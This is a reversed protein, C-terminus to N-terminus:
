SCIVSESKESLTYRQGTVCMSIIDPEMHKMLICCLKVLNVLNIQKLVLNHGNAELM